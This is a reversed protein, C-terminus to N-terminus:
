KTLILELVNFWYAGSYVGHSVHLCLLFKPFINLAFRETRNYPLCHINVFVFVALIEIM